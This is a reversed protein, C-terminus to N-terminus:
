RKDSQSGPWEAIDGREILQVQDNDDEFVVFYRQEADPVAVMAPPRGKKGKTTAASAPLDERPRETERSRVVGRYFATTGPYIAMVLSGVPHPAFYIPNAPSDLPAGVTPLPVIAKLTTNHLRDSPSPPEPWTDESLDQSSLGRV